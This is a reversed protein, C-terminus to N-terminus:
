LQTIASLLNHPGDCGGGAFSARLKRRFTQDKKLYWERSMAAKRDACGELHVLTWLAGRTSKAGKKTGSNHEALRRAPDSTWGVYTRVGRLDKTALVYVYAPAHQEPPAPPADTTLATDATTLNGSLRRLPM